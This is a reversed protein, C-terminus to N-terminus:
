FFFSKALLLTILLTSNQKESWDRLKIVTLYIDGFDRYTTLEAQEGRSLSKRRGITSGFHSGPLSARTLKPLYGAVTTASGVDAAYTGDRFEHDSLSINFGRYQCRSFRERPDRVLRAVITMPVLPSRFDRIEAQRADRNLHRTSTTM